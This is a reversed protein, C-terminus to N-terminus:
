GSGVGVRSIMFNNGHCASAFPLLKMIAGPDPSPPTAMVGVMLGGAGLGQVARFAILQVMGDAPGGLLGSGAMGCLASGVLFIVVSTLFVSKRGYLDGFPEVHRLGGEVVVELALVLDDGAEHLVPQLPDVREDGPGVRM